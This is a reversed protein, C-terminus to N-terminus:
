GADQTDLEAEREPERETRVARQPKTCQQAAAKLKTAPVVPHVTVNRQSGDRLWRRGQPGYVGDPEPFCQLLAIYLVAALTLSVPMSIDLGGALQGLPGVFQDPLNVFCLSIAASPIWAGMARWNWGHKFWYHGGRGGRNFVQLDDSLYFGRRTVFGIIMIVMWPCSCVNILVSFTSVSEVLNFAFRGLFIFGIALSGILLTARVRNLFKPFM